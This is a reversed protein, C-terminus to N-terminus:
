HIKTELDLLEDFGQEWFLIGLFQGFFGPRLMCLFRGHGGALSGNHNSDNNTNQQGHRSQHYTVGQM